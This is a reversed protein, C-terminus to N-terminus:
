NKTCSILHSRAHQHPQLRDAVVPCADANRGTETELLDTAWQRLIGLEKRDSDLIKRLDTVGVTIANRDSLGSCICPFTTVACHTVGSMCRLMM